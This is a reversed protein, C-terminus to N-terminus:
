TPSAQITASTTIYSDQWLWWPSHHLAALSLSLTNGGYASTHFPLLKVRNSLVSAHMVNSELASTVLYPIRILEMFCHHAKYKDGNCVALRRVIYQSDDESQESAHQYGRCKLARITQEPAHLRM